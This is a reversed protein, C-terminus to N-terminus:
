LKWFDKRQSLEFFAWHSSKEWFDRLFRKEVKLEGWSAKRKQQLLIWYQQRKTGTEKEQKMKMRGVDNMNDKERLRPAHLVSWLDGGTLNRQCKESLRRNESINKITKHHKNNDFYLFFLVLSGEFLDKERERRCQGRIFEKKENLEKM